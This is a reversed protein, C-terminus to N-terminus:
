ERYVIVWLLRGDEGFKYSLELLEAAQFSPIYSSSVSSVSSAISETLCPLVCVDRFQRIM